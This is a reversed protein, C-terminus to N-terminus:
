GLLLGLAEGGRVQPSSPPHGGGRTYQQTYGGMDGAASPPAKTRPSCHPARPARGHEMSGQRAPEQPSSVLRMDAWTQQQKRRHSKVTGTIPLQKTFTYLPSSLPSTGKM